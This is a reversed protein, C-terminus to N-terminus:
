GARRPWRWWARRPGAFLWDLPTLAIIGYLASCLALTLGTAGAIAAGPGFGAEHLLASYTLVPFLHLVYVPYALRTFLRLVRGGGRVAWETLGILGLVHGLMVAAALGAKLLLPATDLADPRAGLAVLAVTAALGLALAGAWFPPRTVTALGGRGHWLMMGGAFLVGHYLFGAAEVDFLSDPIRGKLGHERGVATALVAVATMVALAAPRDVRLAPLRAGLGHAGAALGCYLLLWWLFWLHELRGWEQGAAMNHLTMFLLLTIGVRLSRDRAFSGPGRRELTMAAFFGALVMFLPMRWLHLWLVMAAVWDPQAPAARLADPLVKGFLWDETYILAGHLVLGLLMAGARVADLGHYRDQGM